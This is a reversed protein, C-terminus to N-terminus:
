LHNLPSDVIFDEVQAAAMLRNDETLFIPDGLASEQRELRAADSLRAIDRATLACARQVADYGKLSHDNCLAAARHVVVSVVPILQYEGSNVQEWFVALAEECHKKRLTGGRALQNLSAAIEAETV